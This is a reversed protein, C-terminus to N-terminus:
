NKKQQWWVAENESKIYKGKEKKGEEEEEKLHASLNNSIYWGAVNLLCFCFCNYSLYVPVPGCVNREEAMVVM